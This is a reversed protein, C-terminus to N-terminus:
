TQAESGGGAHLGVAFHERLADMVAQEDDGGSRLVAGHRRLWALWEHRTLVGLAHAARAFDRFGDEGIGVARLEPVVLM